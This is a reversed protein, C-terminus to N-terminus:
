HKSINPLGMCWALPCEKIDFRGSGWDKPPLNSSLGCKWDASFVEVVGLMVSLNQLNKRWPSWSSCAEFLQGQIQQEVWGGVSTSSDWTWCRRSTGFRRTESAPFWKLMPVQAPLCRLLWMTVSLYQNSALQCGSGRRVKVTCLTRKSSADSALKSQQEGQRQMNSHVTRGSCCLAFKSEGLRQLSGCRCGSEVNFVVDYLFTWQVESVLAIRFSHCNGWLDGWWNCM